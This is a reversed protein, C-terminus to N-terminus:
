PQKADVLVFLVRAPAAGHNIWRHNTAQQVVVDGAKLHVTADDLILDIEGSMVVGYDVTRTRHMLPHKVPVGRAPACDGVVNMVMNPPLKAEADPTLPLFEVVRLATGGASPCFGAPKLAADDKWSFGAPASDTVWLAARPSGSAPAKFPVQSDFLAFSRNDANLGTVVRRIDDASATSIVAVALVAAWIAVRMMM